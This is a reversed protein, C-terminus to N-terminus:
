VLDRRSQLESTHEESRPGANRRRGHFVELFRFDIAGHSLLLGIPANSSPPSQAYNFYLYRSCAMIRATANANRRVAAQGNAAWAWVQTGLWFASQITFM